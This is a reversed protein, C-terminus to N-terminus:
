YIYIIYDWACAGAKNKGEENWASALGEPLRAPVIAEMAALCQLPWSRALPSLFHVNASSKRIVQLCMECRAAARNKKRAHRRSWVSAIWCVIVFWEWWRKMAGGWVEENLFKAVLFAIFDEQPRVENWGFCVALHHLRRLPGLRKSEQSVKRFSQQLKICWSAGKEGWLHKRFTRLRPGALSWLGLSRQIGRLLLSALRPHADSIDSELLSGRQEPVGAKNPKTVQVGTPTLISRSLTLSTFQCTLTIWVAKTLGALDQLYEETRSWCCSSPFFFISFVHRLFLFCVSLCSFDALIASSLCLSESLRPLETNWTSCHRWYKM